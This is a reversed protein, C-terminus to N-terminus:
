RSDVRTDLQLRDMRSLQRTLEYVNISSSHVCDASLKNCENM